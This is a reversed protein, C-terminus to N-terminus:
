AGPLLEWQFERVPADVGEIRLTILHASWALNLAHEPGEALSVIAFYLGALGLSGLVGVVLPLRMRRLPKVRSDGVM